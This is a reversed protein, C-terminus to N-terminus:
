YHHIHMWFLIFLINLFAIFHSMNELINDYYEPKQDVPTHVRPSGYIQLRDINKMSSSPKLKIEVYSIGFDMVNFQKLFNMM